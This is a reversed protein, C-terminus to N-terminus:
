KRGFCKRFPCTAAPAQKTMWTAIDRVVGNRLLMVLVHLTAAPILDDQTGSVGDAGKAIESVIDEVTEWEPSLKYAVAVIEMVSFPSVGGQKVMGRVTDAIDKVHQPAM